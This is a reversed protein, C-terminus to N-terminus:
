DQDRQVEEREIDGCITVSDEGKDESPLIGEDIEEGDGEASERESEEPVSSPASDPIDANIIHIEVTENDEEGACCCDACSAQELDVGNEDLAASNEQNRAKKQKIVTAVTVAIGAAAAGFALMKLLAGSKKM